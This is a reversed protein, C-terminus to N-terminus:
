SKQVAKNRGSLYNVVALGILAAYGLWSMWDAVQGFFIFGFIASFVIQTYDFISIESAPAFSYAYTVSYQGGSAMLGAMLLCGLQRLDPMKFDLMTMPIFVLLSFASFFFIIKSKDIGQLSLKRVYVYATGACVAGLAAILSAAFNANSFSPKIILLSFAFACLVLIVQTRTPKEKLLFASVVITIFPVLKQIASADALLLHDVAYYNCLIGLTGFASRLVLNGWSSKPYHLDQHNSVIVIGAVVVAILNRFLSKEASPLDGAMRVFVNMLAFCLASAIICLMGKKRNTMRM